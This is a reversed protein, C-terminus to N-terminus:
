KGKSETIRRSESNLLLGIMTGLALGVIFSITSTEYLNLFVILCIGLALLYWKSIKDTPNKECEICSVIGLEEITKKKGCLECEKKNM